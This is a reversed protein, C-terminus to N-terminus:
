TSLNAGSKKRSHYNHVNSGYNQKDNPTKSKELSRKVAGPTIEQRFITQQEGKPTTLMEEQQVLMGPQQEMQALSQAIGKSTSMQM